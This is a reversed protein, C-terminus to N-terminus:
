LQDYQAGQYCYLDEFQPNGGESQLTERIMESVYRAVLSKHAEHKARLKNVGNRVQAPPMNLVGTHEFNGSQVTKGRDFKVVGGAFRTLLIEKRLMEQSKVSIGM